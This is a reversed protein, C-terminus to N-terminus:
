AFKYLKFIFLLFRLRLIFCKHLQNHIGLKMYRLFAAHINPLSILIHLCWITDIKEYMLKPTTSESILVNIAIDRQLLYPHRQEHSNPLLAIHIPHYICIQFCFRFLPIRRELFFQQNMFRSLCLLFFM